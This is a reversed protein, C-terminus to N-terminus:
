VSPVIRRAELYYRKDQPRGMSFAKRPMMGGRAVTSFLAGKDLPPLLFCFCGEERALRWLEEEGHVYDVRIDQRTALWADLFAQLESVPLLNAPSNATLAGPVGGPMLIPYAFAYRWAERRSAQGEARASEFEEKGLEISAGGRQGYYGRLGAALAAALEDARAGFVARHIPESVVGESHINVIEVLAHRAPHSARGEPPLTGRLTDWHAKAAALSHNGDGVAFLLRDRVLAALSRAVHAAIDAGDAAYGAVSGGGLMLGVDYLRRMRTKAAGLGAFLIDKPDDVLVLTHPLEIPSLARIRVRPPLRDPVTAETARILTRAGPSYDYRELDLAVLLGLRTGGGELRRETLVFGAYPEAFVGGRLYSRMAGCAARARREFGDGLFAEPVIMRLTSPAGGVIAGAQAWYAPKSTHQDCAVVPWASCARMGGIPDGGISGVGVTGGGLRSGEASGGAALSAPILVEPVAVGLEDFADRMYGNAGGASGNICGARDDCGAMEQM